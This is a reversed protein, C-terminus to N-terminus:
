IRSSPFTEMAAFLSGVLVGEEGHEAEEVHESVSESSYDAKNGRSSGVIILSPVTVM